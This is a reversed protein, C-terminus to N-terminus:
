FAAVTVNAPQAAPANNITEKVNEISTAQQGNEALTPPATSNQALAQAAHERIEKQKKANIESVMRSIQADEEERKARRIQARANKIALPHDKNAPPPKAPATGVQRHTNKFKAGHLPKKQKKTPPQITPKKEKSAEAPKKGVKSATVQMPKESLKRLEPAPLNPDEHKLAFTKHKWNQTPHKNCKWFTVTNEDKNKYNTLQLCQKAKNTIHKHNFWIEQDYQKKFHRVTVLRGKKLRKKGKDISDQVSLALNRDSHLRISRTRQDVIWIARFDKADKSIKVIKDDNVKQNSMYLHRAGPMMSIIHFPSEYLKGKPHAIPVEWVRKWQQTPNQNCHWWTLFANDKAKFLEPNLCKKKKNVIHVIGKKTTAKITVEKQDATGTYKRFAATKGLKFRNLSDQNSLALYRHSDQRISQTREDYVFWARWDIRNKDLKAVRDKGNVQKSVILRLPGKAHALELMFRKTFKPEPKKDKHVHEPFIRDGKADITEAIRPRDNQRKFERPQIIIVQLKQTETKDFPEWKVPALPRFNAFTLHYESGRFKTHLRGDYKLAQSPENKWLRATVFNGTLKISLAFDRKNYLRISKTRTDWTFQQQTDKHNLVRTRIFPEDSQKRIRGFIGITYRPGYMGRFLVVNGDATSTDFAKTQKIKKHGTKTKRMFTIKNISYMQTNIRQCADWEFESAPQLNIPQLCFKSMKYTTIFQGTFNITQTPEKKFPKFIAKSGYKGPFYGLKNDFSLAYQRHHFPRLTKTRKEWVFQQAKDLMNFPKSILKLEPMVRKQPVIKGIYALSYKPEVQGRIVIMQQDIKDLNLNLRPAAPGALTQIGEFSKVQKNKFLKISWKQSENKNCKWWTLLTEDKNAYHRTSLCRKKKNTVKGKDYKVWRQDATGEYKRVVATKGPKLRDKKIKTYTNSIALNRNSHLRISNTRQDVIFLARWDNVDKTIKLAIDAGDKQKSVYVRRNGKM